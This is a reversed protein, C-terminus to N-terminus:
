KTVEGSANRSRRMAEQQRVEAQARLVIVLIDAVAQYLTAPIDEDVEVTKYLAQALPKNELVPIGHEGALAKIQQALLNMGKSVVKPADMDQTYRLAVAYHTPNTVIVTATKAAALAQKKRLRRQLRRIRSKILPNGDNQKHEEKIEEKSMKLDSEMKMWTLGYDVGAWAILVVCAKWGVEVIMGGLVAGLERVDFASAHVIVNWHRQVSDEGIWAIAAFPLLSKLVNSLGTISFIQGVKSAPNFREPKIAMAQPAINFGGQVLGAAVSLGMACLLVPVIWRFVEISSWFLVPGNSQIDGESAMNLLSRYFVTWHTITGKALFSLAGIAGVIALVSPLERSRAIQGQERAKQRRQTTAQETKNSDAV